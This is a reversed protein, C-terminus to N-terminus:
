ECLELDAEHHSRDSVIAVDTLYGMRKGLRRSAATLDLGFAVATPLLMPGVRTKDRMILLLYSENEVDGSACPGCLFTQGDACLM